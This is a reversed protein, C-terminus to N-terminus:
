LGFFMPLLKQLDMERRFRQIEWMESRHTEELLQKMKKQMARPVAMAAMCPKEVHCTPEMEIGCFRPIGDDIASSGHSGWAGPQETLWHRARRNPAQRLRRVAMLMKEPPWGSFVCVPRAVPAESGHDPLVADMEPLSALVEELTCDMDAKALVRVPVTSAAGEAFADELLPGVLTELEEDSWGGVVVGLPGFGAPVLESSADGELQYFKGESAQRHVRRRATALAACSAVAIHQDLPRPAFGRSHVPGQSTRALVLPRPLAQIPHPLFSLMTDVQWHHCFALM